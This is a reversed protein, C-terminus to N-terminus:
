RVLTETALKAESGGNGFSEGDGFEPIVDGLLRNDPRPGTNVVDQVLAHDGLSAKSVQHHRRDWSLVDFFLQTRLKLERALKENSRILPRGLDLGQKGLISIFVGRNVPRIEPIDHDFKSSGLTSVDNARDSTQRVECVSSRANFFALEESIDLLLCQLFELYGPHVSM